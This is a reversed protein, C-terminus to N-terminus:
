WPEAGGGPWLPNGDQDVGEARYQRLFKRRLLGGPDDPVQLLWSQSSEPLLEGEPLEVDGALPMTQQERESQGAPDELAEAPTEAPQGSVGPAPDLLQKLVELNHRADAHDPRDLLLEEYLRIATEISGALALATARNYRATVANLDRLVEASEIFRGQRYLAAARWEPDDFLEAARAYDSDSFARMGQQDSTTFWGDAAYAGPPVAFVLLVLIWGRRFALAALPLLFLLLLPGEDRWRRAQLGEERGGAAASRVRGLLDRLDGNDATMRRYGGGGERALRLMEDEDPRSVVLGAWDDRLFGGRMDPVPAGDPTAAGLVLLRHGDARLARAADVARRGGSGDTVLLVTGESADAQNLLRHGRVLAAAVDSGRSPMVDPALVDLLNVLTAADTTVPAVTFAHGSFAVLGNQGAARMRLGEKIKLRARDLRTPTLDAALMSRSVDLVAVLADGGRMATVPVQRYAPGALALLCIALALSCVLRWNSGAGTGRRDILFPALAPDLVKAWPGRAQRGRFWPLAALPLALLWLPRIWHLDLEM